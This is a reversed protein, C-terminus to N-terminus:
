KKRMISINGKLLGKLENYEEFSIRYDKPYHIEINDNNDFSLKKMREFMPNLDHLINAV